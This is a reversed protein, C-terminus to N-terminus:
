GFVPACRDFRRFGLFLGPTGKFPLSPPWFALWSRETARLRERIVSKLPINNLSVQNINFVQTQAEHFATNRDTMTNNCM